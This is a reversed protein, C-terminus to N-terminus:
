QSGLDARSVLLISSEDAIAQLVGSVALKDFRLEVAPAASRIASDNSGIRYVEARDLLLQPEVALGDLAKSAVWVEVLSGVRIRSSFAASPQVVVNALSATQEGTVAAAPVLQGAQVPQTLLQGDLNTQDTLYASDSESFSAHVPVLDSPRLVAGAPLDVAASWYQKGGAGGLYLFGITAVGAIVLAFGAAWLPTRKSRSRLRLTNTATVAAM